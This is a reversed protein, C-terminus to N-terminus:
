LQVPTVLNRLDGKFYKCEEPDKLFAQLKM